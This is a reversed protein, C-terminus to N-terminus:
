IKSPAVLRIVSRTGILKPVTTHSGGVFKFSDTFNTVSMSQTIVSSVAAVAVNKNLSIVLIHKSWGDEQIPYQEEYKRM